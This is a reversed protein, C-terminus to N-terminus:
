FQLHTLFIFEDKDEVELYHAHYEDPDIEELNDQLRQFDEQSIPSKSLVRVIEIADRGDDWAQYIYTQIEFPTNPLMTELYTSYRLVLHYNDDGPQSNISWNQQQAPSNQDFGNKFTTQM